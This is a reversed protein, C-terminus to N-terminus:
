YKNNIFQKINQNDMLLDANIRAIKGSADKYQINQNDIDLTVSHSFLKNIGINYRKIVECVPQVTDIDVIVLNGETQIALVVKRYTKNNYIVSIEQPDYSDETKYAVKQKEINYLMSTQKQTRGLNASKYGRLDGIYDGDFKWIDNDTILLDAMVENQSFTTVINFVANKDNIINYSFIDCIRNLRDISKLNLLLSCVTFEEKQPLKKIRISNFAKLVNYVQKYFDIDYKQNNNYKIDSIYTLEFESNFEYVYMSYGDLLVIHNLIILWGKIDRSSDKSRICHIKDRYKYCEKFKIQMEKLNNKSVFNMEVPSGLLNIKNSNM